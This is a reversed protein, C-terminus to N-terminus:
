DKPKLINTVWRYLRKYWPNNMIAQLEDIRRLLVSESRNLQDLIEARHLSQAYLHSIAQITNDLSTRITSDLGTAAAALKNILIDEQIDTQDDLASQLSSKVFSESVKLSAEFQAKFELFETNLTSTAVLLEMLLPIDSPPAFTPIPLSPAVPPSNRGSKTLPARVYSMGGRINSPGISVEESGTGASPHQGIEM